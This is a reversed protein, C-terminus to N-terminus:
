EPFGAAVGCFRDRCTLKKRCCRRRDDAYTEDMYSIEAETYSIELAATGAHALDLDRAPQEPRALRATSSDTCSPDLCSAM